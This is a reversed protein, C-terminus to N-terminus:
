KFYYYMGSLVLLLFFVMIYDSNILFEYWGLEQTQQKPQKPQRPSSSPFLEGQLLPDFEESNLLPKQEPNINKEVIEPLKDSDNEVEALGSSFLNENSYAEMNYLIHYINRKRKSAPYVIFILTINLLCNMSRIM